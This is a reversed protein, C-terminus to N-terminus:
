RPKVAVTAQRPKVFVVRHFGAESLSRTFAAMEATSTHEPVSISIPTEAGAGLSKLRHPLASIKVNSGAVRATDGSVYAVQIPAVPGTRSTACGAALVGIALAAVISRWAQM